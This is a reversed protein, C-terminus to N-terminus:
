PRHEDLDPRAAGFGQRDLVTSADAADVRRVVTPASQKGDPPRVAPLDVRAPALRYTSARAPDGPALSLAVSLAEGTSATGGRGRDVSVTLEVAGGEPVSTM